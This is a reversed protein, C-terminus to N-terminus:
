PAPIWSVRFRNGGFQQVPEYLPPAIDYVGDENGLGPVDTWRFAHDMNVEVDITASEGAVVTVDVPFYVAWAGDEIYAEAEATKSYDPLTLTGEYSELMGPAEFEHEYYGAAMSAGDIITGESTIQLVRLVGDVSDTMENLSALVEFRSWDQVMRGMVYHGPKADEAPFHALVTVDGDNYGVVTATPMEDLLAWHEGSEDILELSRVGATVNQATQSALGDSHPYSDTKSRLVVNVTPNPTGAAGAAGSEGAAGADGAAGAEGSAGAANSGAAGGSGASGAAGGAGGSAQGSEFDSGCGVATILALGM